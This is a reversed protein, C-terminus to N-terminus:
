MSKNDYANENVGARSVVIHLLNAMFILLIASFTPHCFISLHEASPEVEM